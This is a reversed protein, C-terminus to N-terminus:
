CLCDMLVVFNPARIQILDAIQRNNQFFRSGLIVEFQLTNDVAAEMEVGDSREFRPSAIKINATNLVRHRVCADQVTVTMCTLEGRDKLVSECVLVIACGSDRM